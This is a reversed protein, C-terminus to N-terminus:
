SCPAKLRILNPDQKGQLDQRVQHHLAEERLESLEDGRAEFAFQMLSLLVPHQYPGVECVCMDYIDLFSSFLLYSEQKM